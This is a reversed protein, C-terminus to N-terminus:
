AQYAEKIFDEYTLEKSKAKVNDKFYQLMKENQLQESMRKVEEQNSMVRAVIQEVEEDTADTHGFQAMQMKIQTGAYEKLDEFKLQLDENKQLIASEILQYRLGKESKNYEEEAEEATLTNEGNNAIWRKLFDAPLDFKTKEILEETVDTLFKQDTQQSFQKKADERLRERLEDESTIIGEGFLKDFFEQNLEAKERTNVETVEFTVPVNLEDKKEFDIKLHHALDSNDEFLNKTKLEISDGVKSGVFKKLNTKGKIKSIPFTADTNIEEEDNRFVGTVEDGESVEDKSVLKGYQERIRDIQDNITKDDTKIEYATIEKIKSPEVEFEPALGIEFDFTFNDGNWDIDAQEKPLPNGLLNLKEETIYENLKQQILKNVEDVLVPIRYKKNILSAPVKGKRFGPISATKRYDKLIKEVQEQYDSKEIELTLVANLADVDTRKLNM